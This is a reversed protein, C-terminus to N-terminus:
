PRWEKSLSCLLIPIVTCCPRSFSRKNVKMLSKFTTSTKVHMKSASMEDGSLDVMVPDAQLRHHQTGDDMNLGDAHVPNAETSPASSGEGHKM